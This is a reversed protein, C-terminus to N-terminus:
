QKTVSFTGYSGPSGFSYVQYTGSITNDNITGLFNVTVEPVAVMTFTINIQNGSISGSITFANDYAFGGISSGSQTSNILFGENSNNWYWNGEWNGEIGKAVVVEESQATQFESNIVEAKLTHDGNSAGSSDWVYSYPAELDTGISSGDVFFDVSTITALESGGVALANITVMDELIIKDLIPDIISISLPEEEELTTEAWHITVKLEYVIQKEEAGIQAMYDSYERLITHTTGSTVDGHAYVESYDVADINYLVDFFVGICEYRTDDTEIVHGYINTTNLFWSAFYMLATNCGMGTFYEQFKALLGPSYLSAVYPTFHTVEATLFMGDASPAATVTEEEWSSSSSNYLFLAQEQGPVLKQSSPVSITVPLLFTLGDPGFDAGGPFPTVGHELDM